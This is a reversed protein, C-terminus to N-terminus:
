KKRNSLPRLVLNNIKIEKMVEKEKEKMKKRDNEEIDDFGLLHLICHIVYLSTEEYPDIQHKSSYQMAVYPCVFMEGLIHCPNADFSDIPLTICDTITPDNFFEEHLSSIEEKSVFSLEILNCTINFFRLVHQVLHKASEDDIPLDTQSSLVQVIM